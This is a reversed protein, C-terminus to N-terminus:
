TRTLGLDVAHTFEDDILVVDRGARDLISAAISARYGSACHVWLTGDPLDSVDDILTSLPRHLAGPILGVALEDARRVDLVTGELTSLDSPLQDFQVVAYKSREAQEGAIADLSGTAAGSPRDIGIRVLQRQAAAVQEEAEAILTIPTGYPFLWGLYTSLAPVLQFGFTGAIHEGAFARRERLDVVWEGAAIRQRIEGPGVSPLPSLDAPEVGLGNRPAMYQYYAPYASLNSIMAEVARGEDAEILAPNNRREDGITSSDATGAPTSSCFSGFGHTPFVSSDEALDLALRHVSHYQAIALDRAYDAHWLDTRGVSGFLLSGGTFVVQTDAETQVVYSVHHPTHGPTAVVRVSLAGFELVDDDRVGVRDFGVDEAANVLYPVDFERALTLGGSLYDNHLHTEAVGALSLGLAGLQEVIRDVDRQPDIVIATSGDHALYSRDGLEPTEIVVVDVV